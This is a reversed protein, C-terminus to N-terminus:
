AAVAATRQEWRIAEEIQRPKLGYEFALHDIAVPPKLRIPGPLHAGPDSFAIIIATTIIHM